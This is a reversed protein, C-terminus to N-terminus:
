LNERRKLCLFSTMQVVETTHSCLVLWIPSNVVSQLLYLFFFFCMCPKWCTNAPVSLGDSIVALRWLFIQLRVKQIHLLNAMLDLVNSIELIPQFLAGVCM